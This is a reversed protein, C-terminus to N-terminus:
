SAAGLLVYLREHWGAVDRQQRERDARDAQWRPRDRHADALATAIQDVDPEGETPWDYTLSRQQEVWRGTTPALAATGLDHCAEIWGSHTGFAYPMVSVDLGQLYRWLEDDSHRDHRVVRLPGVGDGEDLLRALTLDTRVHGESLVEPHVHVAVRAGPLDSAAAVLASVVPAAVVNARLSKLHLGVVFRDDRREARTGVLETPAVHPHAVVDPRRGWRREIDDAAGDTLTVLADAAPVLVDLRDLHERQDVFHPNVVDHVTVVLPIGAQRLADVWATLAAPTSADFGFHLHVVDVEDAHDRVWAPALAPPPWWQGPAGGPVPPDPLHVVEPRIGPRGTARIRQTYSHAGPISLVRVPQHRGSM